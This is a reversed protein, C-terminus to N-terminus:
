AEEDQEFIIHPVAATFAAKIDDMPYPVLAPNVIGDYMISAAPNEKSISRYLVGVYSAGTPLTDYKAPQAPVTPTEGQAPVAETAAVVPMPAYTGDTKKIIVHGALVNDEPFDSCDLTRGGPIGSTYKRIVASDNGFIVQSKKPSIDNKM